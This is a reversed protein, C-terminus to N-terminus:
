KVNLAFPLTRVGGHWNFQAYIKYLGPRPFRGSFRVIGRKVLASNEADEVPHSHVVTQGDQHFIMLHGAAGLWPKTDGAPSGSKTDFLKVQLTVGQSLIIPALTVLQGKLGGTTSEVSRTLHTNWTPKPGSVNVKNILVRSGKGAPAVDGYVWYSGGAPFVQTIKWTGDPTMVPHEHVFWNLDKSAIMLHFFKTHAEDFSTEPKGTATDMVRLQLAIPMGATAVHPWGVVELRYPAKLVAKPREDHVSVVFAINKTGKGPVALALAIKFDGGHPFFVEMGYDGPVGERHVKFKASPMGEMGPMTMTAVSEIGGVGKFGTEVPDKQTTDM